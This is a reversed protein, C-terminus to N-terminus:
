RHILLKSIKTLQTVTSMVKGNQNEAICQYYGEDLITPVEFHLNGTGPVIYTHTTYSMPYGNKMWLYSYHYCSVHSLSWHFM